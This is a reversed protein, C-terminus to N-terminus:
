NMFVLSLYESTRIKPKSARSVAQAGNAAVAVDVTPIGMGLRAGTAEASLETVTVGTGTGAVAVKVAVRTGDAVGSDAMRKATIPSKPIPFWSSASTAASTWLQVGSKTM